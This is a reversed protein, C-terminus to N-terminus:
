ALPNNVNDEIDADSSEWSYVKRGAITLQVRYLEEGDPLSIASTNVAQTEGSVTVPIAVTITKPDDVTTVTFEANVSTVDTLASGTIVLQSASIADDTINIKSSTGSLNTGNISVSAVSPLNSPVSSGTSETEPDLFVSGSTGYSNAARTAASPTTYQQYLDDSTVILDQSSVKLKGDENRSLIWAFAGSYVLEGHAIFGGNVAVAQEPFVSLVTDISSLSLVMEYRRARLKPIGNDTFQEISLYSLQDGERIFTNNSLIASTLDGITTEATIEFGDGVAINTVANVGSGSVIINQLSGDTIRYPAVVGGNSDAIEKPLYVKFSKKLNISVLRNYDSINSAKNEFAKKFFSPTCQYLRVINALSSRQKMQSETKADKPNGNYGRTVQEGLRRAFVLDGVKGRAYGLLM